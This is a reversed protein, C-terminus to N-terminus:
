GLRWIVMALAELKVKDREDSFVALAGDLLATAPNYKGSFIQQLVSEEAQLHVIGSDDEEAQAANRVETMEEAKVVLSYKSGTDTAALLITREWNKVLKKVKPNGNFLHQFNRLTDEYGLENSTWM